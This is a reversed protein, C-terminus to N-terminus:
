QGSDRSAMPLWLTITAGVGVESEAEADGDHLQMLQRVISLGLGVGFGKTSFFPEFLLAMHDEPIGPGNDAIRIELRDGAVRTTVTIRPAWGEPANGSAQREELAHCANAFVNVVCRRMRDRDVNLQANASLERVLEIGEPLTQEDLVEALWEDINTAECQLHHERTFDALEEIIRDCREINREIRDLAPALAHNRNALEKEVLYFSGRITQLPNRLEHSVTAAVRGLAVLREQNLLELQARRLQESRDQVREELSEHLSRLRAVLANFSEALTSIEDNGVVPVPAVPSDHGNIAAHQFHKSIAVLRRSVIRRFTFLIGGFLVLLWVGTTAVNAVVDEMLATQAEDLPIAITDMGAVDGIKYGFGRKSGYRDILSQPADEPSGHCRLCGARIRMPSLHVIYTQGEMKLKGVWQKAEPRDRFYQLKKSEEAGAQNIPNRPNDSSFKIVYNPFQREVKAFVRRVIYSTSMAEVVFEDKGIRKAMAPRIHEAVYDRIALDFELALRAQLSAVQEVHERTTQWARHVILASFVVAFGAVWISFRTGISTM